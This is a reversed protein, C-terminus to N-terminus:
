SELYDCSERDRHIELVKVKAKLFCLFLFLCVFFFMKHLWSLVYLMKVKKNWSFNYSMPLISIAQKLIVGLFFFHFLIYKRPSEM